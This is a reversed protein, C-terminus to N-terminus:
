SLAIQNRGQQKARYLQQDALRTLTEPSMEETPIVSSLGFSLSVLRDLPSSRHEIQLGTAQDTNPLVIAFEEGGYRAVLDGPRKLTQAIAQAVEFLCRDGALHGYTDNFPKFFDVDCLILTLPLQSSIANEWAWQLHQEFRRRNAVQTLGDLNALRQLDQNVVQLRAESQRLLQQNRIFRDLLGSIVAGLSLGVGFLILTLQNLTQKGQQYELRRARVSLIQVPSGDRGLLYIEGQLWNSDLETMHPSIQAIADNSSQTESLNAIPMLQLKLDKDKELQNLFGQNVFAGMLLAGRRPAKADSTLIPRVAVLLPAGSTAVFGVNRSTSLQPNSDEPFQFFSSAKLLAERVDQPVPRLQQSQPDVWDLHLPQRKLDFVGLVDTTSTAMGEFAYTESYFKPNRDVLYTHMETWIAEAKATSDLKEVRQNLADSIQTLRKQM